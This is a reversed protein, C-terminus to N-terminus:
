TRTFEIYNTSIAKGGGDSVLLAIQGRHYAGHMGVHFLIDGIPTQFEFGKTNKDTVVSNLGAEPLTDSYELYAAHIEDSLDLCEGVSLGGLAPTASSDEGKLRMLRITEAWLIHSLLLHAKSNSLNELSTLSRDLAWREYVFLDRLFEHM